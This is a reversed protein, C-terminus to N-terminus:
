KKKKKGKEKIDLGKRYDAKEKGKLKSIVYNNVQTYLINRAVRLLILCAIFLAVAFATEYIPKSLVINYITLGATYLMGIISMISVRKVRKVVESRNEASEAFEQIAQKKEEKSMREFKTKM